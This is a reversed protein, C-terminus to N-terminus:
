NRSLSLPAGAPAGQTSEPTWGRHPTQNSRCAVLNGEFERASADWGCRVANDRCAKSDLTLARRAAQALDADLAGTV